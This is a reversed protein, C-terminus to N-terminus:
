SCNALNVLSEGQWVKRSYPLVVYMRVHVIGKCETANICNGKWLVMDGPCFCGETCGGICDLSEKTDCTQPCVQGCQQYVM